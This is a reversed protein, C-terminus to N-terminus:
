NPRKELNATVSIEKGGRNIKVRVTQGVRKQSIVNILINNTDIKRGDVEIIIDRDRLGAKEAPSKPLVAQVSESGFILAGSNVSLNERQVLEPTIMIYRVGLFAQTNKKYYLSPINIDINNNGSFPLVFNNWLDDFFDARAPLARFIHLAALGIIIGAFFVSIIKKNM